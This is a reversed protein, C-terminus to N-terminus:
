AAPLRYFRLANGSWLKRRDNAPRNRTMTRLAEVWQRFTGGTLCVPWDGGFLVRDPGFVDLCHDVVPALTEVADAGPPLSGMIGSIKCMVNRHRAFAEMSRKWSSADHRPRDAGALRPHFAKLDPNGCHDVIFRTGPCREVLRVGDMLEPARMCLDFSLNMRGLLRIGKVFADGLCYGAPTSGGHLVQRVGKVERRRRHRRLYDGFGPDAPRGGVVAAVTPHRGSRCLGVVYEVEDDHRAVPMDVEMYVARVNFGRTAEAYEEPRYDRRMLEGAGDIWDPRHPGTDWLHQHCDIILDEPAAAARALLTAGGPFGVASGLAFGAAGTRIFHRRSIPRIPHNTSM